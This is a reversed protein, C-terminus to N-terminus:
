ERDLAALAKRAAEERAIRTSRGSGSGVVREGLRAECTYVRDHDPGQVEVVPFSPDPLGRKKALEILASKPHVGYSGLDSIADLVDDIGDAVVRRCAELGQDLFLAGLVSETADALIRPKQRGGQAEEGRGLRLLPGIGWREGMAALQDAQVLGSRANHLQGEPAAPFRLYLIETVCLQFVADGLFELREYHAADQHEVAWSRHTLAQELLAPDRFSAGLRAQLDDLTV